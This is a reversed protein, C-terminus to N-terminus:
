GLWQAQDFRCTKPGGRLEEEPCGGERVGLWSLRWRLRWLSTGRGAGGWPLNSQTHTHLLDNSTTGVHSTLEVRWVRPRGAGEGVEQLGRVARSLPRGRCLTRCTCLGLARFSRSTCPIQLETHGPSPPLVPRPTPHVGTTLDLVSVPFGLM